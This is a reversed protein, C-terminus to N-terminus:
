LPYKLWLSERQNVYLAATQLLIKEVNRSMGDISFRKLAEKKANEVYSKTKDPFIILSFVANAILEPDRSDVLLGSYGSQIMEPIGGARTAIVPVGSLMAEAVVRGFPEILSPVVLFDTIKYVEAIDDISGAFIVNKELNNSKIINRLEKMYRNHIRFVTGIIMLKFRPNKKLLLPMALLAERQGKRDCIVGIVSLIIEDKDIGYKKRLEAREGNKVAHQSIDFGNYVISIKNRYEQPFNQKIYESNVIIHQSLVAIIRFLIKDLFFFRFGGSRKGLVEHISWIHPRGSIKSAMAGSIITATNTYVIDVNLKEILSKIKFISIINIPIYFFYKWLFRKQMLWYKYSCAFTKIGFQRAREELIGNKPVVLYCEFRDRDLNLLIDLLAKEAGGLDASHSIFLIKM